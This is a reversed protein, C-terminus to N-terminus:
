VWAKLIKYQVKFKSIYDIWSVESLLSCLYTSIPSFFTLSIKNPFITPSNEVSNFYYFIFPYHKLVRYLGRFIQASSITMFTVLPVWRRLYAHSGDLPRESLTRFAIWGFPIWKPMSIRVLAVLTTYWRRTGTPGSNRVVSDGRCRFSM